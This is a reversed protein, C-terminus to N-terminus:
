GKRLLLRAEGVTIVSGTVLVGAGAFEGEEEALTIAAELADDLRPEVVVREEGFVEVAVAALADPDMARPTSNATVVVEAFIPEFAELLGRVDKDDSAGVVGILRSFGFAERVGDAAARAGAPNHAADLVVTPSRRVVELRGPSAVSGFARRVTDLDLPRAHQAGIGFFAEVAALAVAANHAQHAGYLPLFVGEYEGGLGRLTLLQGGVAVERSVVGFELGERAVTAAAEVAKKLLVQAADVPQQALIVTADPKIIGAKEAAIEAPTSGLRDTHDLSIPTVVAVSGDIVNTADWSGGMGVEVVAVDVPADAFAAYAMGTLVEFFSLRYEQAADVMEVYPQIDRYTEVFREADVPAGDLSIRETITQVHPSTYRGTRLDFAGLLAEIMRATSTKGNTGTIHISPYARQPEGLVDMLASIRQVSPELKTEGWRTSLEQEVERLARDVEPDTPRSPVPDGQPPGAQARLTRSGAEIVALDPGSTEEPGDPDPSGPLSTEAQVIDDFGAFDDSDPHDSSSPQESM